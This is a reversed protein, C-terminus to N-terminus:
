QSGTKETIQKSGHKKDDRKAGKFGTVFLFLLIIFDILLSIVLIDSMEEPLNVFIWISLILGKIFFLGTIVLIVMLQPSRERTYAVLSFFLLVCALVTVMAVLVEFGEM